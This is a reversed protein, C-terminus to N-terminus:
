LETAEIRRNTQRGDETDNPAIPREDGYGAAEIRSKDIGKSALYDRCAEARKQSLTKNTKPNGKNDTHGSIQIRSSKKYTMYEAVADLRPFSEPRITAKGSDFNVGDLVFRPEPSAMPPPEYRKYRLTLRVTQNPEDTVAVNAAIDRRGLSLYVLDYKQGVPVLVEAYGDVDTEETYYKKGDAGTLSVVIGRIPGKDKDVVSFKLAAESRTPKIKSASSRPATKPDNTRLVFEGSEPQAADGPAPAGTDAAPAAAPAEGGAAPASAQVQEAGAAPAQAAQGGGCAVLILMSLTVSVQHRM